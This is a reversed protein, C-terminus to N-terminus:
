AVGGEIQTACIEAYVQNSALLEEHTGNGVLRGNDLVLIRDAWSVSSIRQAILLVTTDGLGARLAARINRETDSDIASTSDDLILIRPNKLLARAICLRQKQGGSVNVGGQGLLTEYGDPFGTVFAHAQAARAAAEIQDDGAYDDGWLLNDRITGSFLLNNQLVMGISQRLSRLPYERVDIGDILVQGGTVDYLRPVLQVLSTKGTGTGGVIAVVEGAEATCTINSLVDEGSGGGPYRFSVDRFEIRGRTVRLPETEAAEAAATVPLITHEEDRIAPETDLVEVVRNGCARARAAMLFVMSVMMLSMLIQTIYQIFSILKGTTFEGAGVLRGGFWLVALTALNMVLTMMPMTTIVLTAARVGAERLEDNSRRFKAKEHAERVFAKVVRIAILNEQVTGNLADIKRQMAAFLGEARTMIVFIGLSLLPIAVLLIAALRAHIGIALVLAFVMMFPARIMLRLTMMFTNQLQTTDSTLRTVLSATSFRDIDSFSFATIRSFLAKRVNWGFGQAAMSSTVMNAIGCLMGGLALLVMTGGTRLIFDLDQGPIGTDVIRAMMMPMRLELFVEGIMFLPAIAVYLKYAGLYRALRRIIQIM